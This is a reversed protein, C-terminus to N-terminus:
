KKTPKPPTKPTYRKNATPAPRGGPTASPPAGKRSRRSANTTTGSKNRPAPGRAPPTYGPLPTKANPAGNKQSRWARLLLWGGAVIFPLVAISNGLLSGLALGTLVITFALPARRGIRITVVIAAAFVLLVVMSFAYHSPPYVTNCTAAQGTGHTTYTYHNPCHHGTPKTLTSVSVRRVMYPISGVLTLVTALAAAAYGIKKEISDAQNVVRRKEADTMNAFDPVPQATTTGSAPRTGGAPASKPGPPNVFTKSLRQWGTM